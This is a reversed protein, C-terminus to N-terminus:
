LGAKSFHKGLWLPLGGSWLKDNKQRWKTCTTPSSARTVGHHADNKSNLFRLIQLYDVSTPPQSCASPEGTPSVSTHSGSFLVGVANAQSSCGLPASVGRQWVSIHFTHQVRGNSEGSCYETSLLDLRSYPLLWFRRSYRGGFFM